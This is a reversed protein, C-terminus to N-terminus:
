GFICLVVLFLGDFLFVCLWLYGCIKLSLNMVFKMKRVMKKSVIDIICIYNLDGILKFVVVFLWGDFFFLCCMLVGWRKWWFRCMYVVEVSIIKWFRMWVLVFFDESFICVM